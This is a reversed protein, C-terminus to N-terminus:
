RTDPVFLAGCTEWQGSETVRSDGEGLVISYELVSADNTCNISNLNSDISGTCGAFTAMADVPAAPIGEVYVEVTYDSAVGQECPPNPTVHFDVLPDGSETTTPGDFSGTLLGACAEFAGNIVVDGPDRGVPQVTYQYGVTQDNVCTITSDTTGSVGSCTDFTAKFDTLGNGLFEVRYDSDVGDMCPPIPSVLIFTREVADGRAGGAGAAGGMGAAGGAGGDSCGLVLAVSAVLVILIRM